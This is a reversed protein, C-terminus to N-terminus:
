NRKRLQKQTSFMELMSEIQVKMKKIEIDKDSELDEIQKQKNENELKLRSEKSIMLEPVAKKYENLLVEKTPFFYSAEMRLKHDMFKEAIAYSITNKESLM